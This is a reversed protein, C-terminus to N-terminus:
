KGEKFKDAYARCKREAILWRQAFWPDLANSEAMAREARALWLARKTRNIEAETEKAEYYYADPKDQVAYLTAIESIHIKNLEPM